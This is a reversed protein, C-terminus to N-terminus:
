EADIEDNFIHNLFKLYAIDDRTTLKVNTKRGKVLHVKEGMQIFLECCNITNTKGAAYANRYHTLGYGLRYTQPTQVSYCSDRVMAQEATKGDHSIILTDTSVMSTMANGFELATSINQSIIESTIFPRVGDHVVVIDEYSCHKELECLGNYVSAQRCDGGPVVWRVKNIKFQKILSILYDEWTPICVVCIADIEPHKEFREITHILVPKDGLIFFQKPPEGDQNMRLGLGGALILAINM